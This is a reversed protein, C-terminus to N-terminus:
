SWNSAGWLTQNSGWKMTGNSNLAYLSSPESEDLGRVYITGDAGIASDVFVAM